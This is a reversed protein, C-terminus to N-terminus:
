VPVTAEITTDNVTFRPEILGLKGRASRFLVLDEGMLRIHMTPHVDLEAVAAVPMWYRRLLEGAPTGPGVRTIRENAQASLM